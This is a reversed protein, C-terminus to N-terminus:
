SKVRKQWAKVVEIGRFMETKEMKNLVARFREKQPVVPIKPEEDLIIVLARRSTKLHVEERLKIEGNENIIAEFTQTM